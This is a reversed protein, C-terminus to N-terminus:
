RVGAGYGRSPLDPTCGVLDHERPCQLCGGARTGANLAVKVQRHHPL